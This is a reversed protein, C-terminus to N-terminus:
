HHNLSIQSNRHAIADFQHCHQPSRMLLPTIWGQDLARRVTEFRPSAGSAHIISRTAINDDANARAATKAGTALKARMRQARLRSIAQIFDPPHRLLGPTIAIYRRNTARGTAISRILTCDFCRWMQFWEKHAFRWEM